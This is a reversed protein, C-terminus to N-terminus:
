LGDRGVSERSRQDLQRATQTTPLGALLKETSYADNIKAAVKSETIGASAMRDYAVGKPNNREFSEKDAYNGTYEGNKGKNQLYIDKAPFVEDLPKGPSMAKAKEASILMREKELYVMAEPKTVNRRTKLDEPLGEDKFTKAYGDKDLFKLTKGSVIGQGSPSQFLVETKSRDEPIKGQYAPNTKLEEYKEKPAYVGDAIKYFAKPMDGRELHLQTEAMKAFAKEAALPGKRENYTDVPVYSNGTTKLMVNERGVSDTADQLTKLGENKPWVGTYSGDQHRVLVDPTDRGAQVPNEYNFQQRRIGGDTKYKRTEATLKEPKLAAFNKDSLGLKEMEAKFASDRAAAQADKSLSKDVYTTNYTQTKTLYTGSSSKILVAKQDLDAKLQDDDLSNRDKYDQLTVYQVEKNPGKKDLPVLVRDDKRALDKMEADLQEEFENMKLEKEFDENTSIEPRKNGAEDRDVSVPTGSFSLDFADKEREFEQNYQHVQADLNRMFNEFDDTGASGADRDGATTSRGNHDAKRM